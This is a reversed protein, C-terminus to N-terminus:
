EDDKEENIKNVTRYLALFGGVTGLLGCVLIMWPKTGFAQDLFYGLLFGGVIPAALGTSVSAALAIKRNNM